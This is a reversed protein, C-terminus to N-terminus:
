ESTVASLYLLWFGIGCRRQQDPVNEVAPTALLIIPEAIWSDVGFATPTVSNRELGLVRLADLRNLQIRSQTAAVHTPLAEIRRTPWGKRLIFVCCKPWELRYGRELLQRFTEIRIEAMPLHHEQEEPRSM